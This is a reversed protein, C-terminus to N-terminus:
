LTGMTEKNKKRVITDIDEFINENFFISSNRYLWDLNIQIINDKTLSLFKEPMESDNFITIFKPNIWIKEKDTFDVEKFIAELEDFIIYKSSHLKDELYRYVMFNKCQKTHEKLVESKILRKNCTNILIKTSELWNEDKLDESILYKLSDNTLFEQLSILKALNIEEESDISLMNIQQIYYEIDKIKSKNHLM